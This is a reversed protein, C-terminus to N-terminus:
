RLTLTKPSFQLGQMVVIAGGGAGSGESSSRGGCAGLATLSLVALLVVVAKALTVEFRGGEARGPWVELPTARALPPRASVSRGLRTWGDGSGARLAALQRPDESRLQRREGSQHTRVGLARPRDIRRDAALVQRASAGLRGRDPHGARWEIEGGDRSASFSTEMAM